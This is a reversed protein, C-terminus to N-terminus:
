FEHPPMGYSKRLANLVASPTLYEPRVQIHHAPCFHKSQYDGKNGKGSGWYYRFQKQDQRDRMWWHQMHTSKTQKPQLNKTVFGLATTNDTQMPTPPQPHGMEILMTRAPIALRSNVFLAGIEADAASSMVNKLIQAISLVAGNNPPETSNDSLYFHGGARSRAKPASLYSADSHVSLVMDSAKYTLVADPHSAAYDLFYHAKEMTETTPASQESAISSLAVLMTPDVARAYFLFTGTVQQIFTKDEKGLAASTDDPKAYQITAGYTPLSHRHPQHTLKRLEHKFRVLADQVYGPISLHVERKIYDWDLNIGAYKSGKWDEAVEYHQKLINILHHAHEEGVYKVGFDDVLLSFCIPRTSHTWLGPTKDSQTYGHKELREALLKQAIIGACPLGYMGKSIRVFVDGNKDAKDHLGYHKIVDDPLFKLKMRMFEPEDMPTNLYFDKLDLGLFRAGPTSIISNLLMKVTLLDATPTGVDGDFNIRSGDVTLRTRNVEKKQPRENCVIRCNTIDKWKDEPVEKRHIFHITDTGNNRGPMGQALRGIENGMSYHWPEKYKPNKILHRYELLDGTDSDLVAGAFSTLFDLPYQRGAAQRATVTVGAVDMAMLLRRQRAARTNQSPSCDDQSIAAPQQNSPATTSEPYEVQLPPVPRVLPTIPEDEEESESESETEPETDYDVRQSQLHNKQARQRDVETEKTAAYGTLAEVIHDVARTTASSTPLAGTLAEGLTDTARLIADSTTIAPQTLYKHKFFVTQAVSTARTEPLWVQHCRYHKESNGIYFGSKTHAAFTRRQAPMIHMEVATGLPAWPNADYDHQGYLHAFASVSPVVRSKRLLNLQHEAPRLLRCWLRMPFHEATGCLVAVFHDKFVQIAKEAINRRHDHPPVLQYDMGNDEIAAAFEKSCENDLIHMKPALGRAKLRSVLVNYARVMEGSNRKKMPEVMIANGDLEVLVMIYQNGRYSTIPFKGTQDTYMKRQLDDHLDYTRSFITRTKSKTPGAPVENEEQTIATKTSRLGSQIKRGHGRWMEDSEPFYKAAVAANLGPWSAYHSNTIAALWTAKTPFGAAAHYYRILEPKTKVEYVNLVDETPPPQSAQLAQDPTASMLTTDSDEDVPNPILPIRWLGSSADRWGRLIAGRSVTIETNTADYINVEDEDFISIYGAEAFRNMSLLTHRVGPLMHVDRAPARLNFPLERLEDAAATTGDGYEFTKDSMKGTPLFPNGKVGYM